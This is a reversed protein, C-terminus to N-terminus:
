ALLGDLTELPIEHDRCADIALRYTVDGLADPLDAETIRPFGDGVELLTTRRIAWGTRQYRDRHLDHYGSMLLGEELPGACTHDRAAIRLEQVTEPLTPHGDRLAELSLHLLLLGRLGHDDLQREGNITVIQPQKAASSKTEIGLNDIEFDRPAGAPGLWAGVAEDIGVRPALHALITTLEAFLGRQRHPPLAADGGQLLRRWRAFRGTLTSAAARDDPTPSTADAIDECLAAFLGVATPDELALVIATRAPPRAELTFHVLATSEPPELADAVATPVILELARRTPQRPGRLQVTAHLERPTDPLLRRQMRGTSGAPPDNELESWIAELNM